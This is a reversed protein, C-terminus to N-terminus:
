EVDQSGKVELRIADIGKKECNEDETVFWLGVSNGEQSVLDDIHNGIRTMVRLATNSPM